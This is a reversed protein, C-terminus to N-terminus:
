IMLHEADLYEENDVFGPKVKVPIPFEMKPMPRSHCPELPEGRAEISDLCAMVNFLTSEGSLLEDIEDEEIWFWVQEPTYPRGHCAIDLLIVIANESEIGVVHQDTM